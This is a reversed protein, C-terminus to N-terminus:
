READSGTAPRQAPRHSGGGLRREDWWVGGWRAQEGEGGM